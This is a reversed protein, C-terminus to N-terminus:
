AVNCDNKSFLIHVKEHGRSYPASVQGVLLSPQSASGYLERAQHSEKEGVSLFQM